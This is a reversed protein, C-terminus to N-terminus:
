CATGREDPHRGARVLRCGTQERGKAEHVAGEGEKPLRSERVEGRRLSRESCDTLCRM